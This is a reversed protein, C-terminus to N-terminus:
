VVILRFKTGNCVARGSKAVPGPANPRSPQRLFLLAAAALAAAQDFYGILNRLTVMALRDKKKREFFLLLTRCEVHCNLKCRRKKEQAVIHAHSIRSIAVQWM